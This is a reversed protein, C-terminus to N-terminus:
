DKHSSPSAPCRPSSRASATNRHRIPPRWCRAPSPPKSGDAFREKLPRFAFVVVTLIGILLGGEVAWIAAVSSVQTVVPHALGPLAVTNTSGYIRPILLTFVKNMVGVMM